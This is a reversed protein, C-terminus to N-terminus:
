ASLLFLLGLGLAFGALCWLRLAAPHEEFWDILASFRPVGVFPMVLGAAAFLVGLARALEPVRTEEASLFLAVGFLIRLGAGLMLGVPSIFGRVTEFLQRPALTGFLGGLCVLLSLAIALEKM